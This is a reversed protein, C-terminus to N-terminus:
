LKNRSTTELCTVIGGHRNLFFPLLLIFPPLQPELADAENGLL